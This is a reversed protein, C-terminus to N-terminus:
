DYYGSELVAKIEKLIYFEGTVGSHADAPEFPLADIFAQAEDKLVESLGAKNWSFLNFYKAKLTKKSTYYSLFARKHTGILVGNIFFEKDVSPINQTVTQTAKHNTAM